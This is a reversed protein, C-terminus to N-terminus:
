GSMFYISVEQIPGNWGKRGAWVKFVATGFSPGCLWGGAGVAFTTIGLVVLPDLGSLQAAWGDIDQQAIIPGFTMM